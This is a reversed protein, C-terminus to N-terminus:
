RRHCDSEGGDWHRGAGGECWRAARAEPAAVEGTAAFSSKSVRAVEAAVLPEVEAGPDAEKVEVDSGVNVVDSLHVPTEEVDGDCSASPLSEGGVGAEGAAVETARAADSGADVRYPM